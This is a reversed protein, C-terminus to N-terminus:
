LTLASLTPTGKPANAGTGRVPETTDADLMATLVNTIKTNRM